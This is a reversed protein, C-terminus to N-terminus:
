RGSVAGTTHCWYGCDDIDRSASDRELDDGARGTRLSWLALLTLLSNTTWGSAVTFIALRDNARGARGAIITFADNAWRSWGSAVALVATIPDSAFRDGSRSTRGSRLTLRALVAAVAVVALRDLALL